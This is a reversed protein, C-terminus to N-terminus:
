LEALMLELIDGELKHFRRRIEIDVTNMKKDVLKRLAQLEGVFADLKKDNDQKRKKAAQQSGAQDEQKRKKNAGQTESKKAIEARLKTLEEMRLEEHSVLMDIAPQLDEKIYISQSKMPRNEISRPNDRVVHCAEVNAHLRVGIKGNLHRDWSTHEDLCAQVANM